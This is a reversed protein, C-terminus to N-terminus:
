LTAPLTVKQGTRPSDNPEAEAVPAYLDLTFPLGASAGAATKLVVPYAGAPAGKPLTVRVTVVKGSGGPLVAAKWGPLTSTVETVSALHEGELKLEVTKGRVGSAPTLKRLVPPKPKVPLPAAVVKGSAEDLLVLAGDYRGVALRRHKDSVALALPTDPQPAYVKREVMRAADWAKVRKDEGLSYLTKGDASYALRTVAGEHAFVSHAIKGGRSSVGWVRISKDVG